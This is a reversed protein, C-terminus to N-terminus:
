NVLSDLTVRAEMPSHSAFHGSSLSLEEKIYFWAKWNSTMIVKNNINLATFFQLAIYSFKGLIPRKMSFLWLNVTRATKRGPTPNLCSKNIRQAPEKEGDKLLCPSLQRDGSMCTYVLPSFTVKLFLQHLIGAGKSFLLLFINPKFFVGIGDIWSFYYEYTNSYNIFIICQLLIFLSLAFLVLFIFFSFM